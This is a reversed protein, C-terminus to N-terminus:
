PIQGGAPSNFNLISAGLTVDAGFLTTPAPMLVDTVPHWAALAAVDPPVIFPNEHAAVAQYTVSAAAIVVGAAALRLVPSLHLRDRRSNARTLVTDFPSLARADERKMDQFAARVLADERDFSTM